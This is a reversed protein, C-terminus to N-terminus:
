WLAKAEPPPAAPRPHPFMQWIPRSFYLAPLVILMTWSFNRTAVLAVVLLYQLGVMAMVCYRSIREGILVPLTRIRKSKDAALKDIHKGFIVTTAGLACPVGALVANGDWGGPAAFYWGGVM